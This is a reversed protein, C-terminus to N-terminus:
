KEPISLLLKAVLTGVLQHLIISCSIDAGRGGGGGCVCVSIGDYKPISITMFPLTVPVCQM